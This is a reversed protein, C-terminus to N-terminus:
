QKMRTDIVNVILISEQNYKYIITTRRYLVIARLNEEQNQMSGLDPFSKILQILEAVRKEYEKAPNDGFDSKIYTLISIYNNVARKTWIIELDM